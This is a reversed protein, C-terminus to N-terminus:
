DGRKGKGFGGFQAGIGWNWLWDAGRPRDEIRKSVGLSIRLVSLSLGGEIGAYTAHASAGRPFAWTRTATLRYDAIARVAKLDTLVLFSKGLGLKASGAGLSAEVIRGAGMAFDGVGAGREPVESGFVLGTQFTARGPTGFQVGWFPLVGADGRGAAGLCLTLAVISSGRNLKM